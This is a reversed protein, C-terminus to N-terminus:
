QRALGQRFSVTTHCKECARGFAGDHVENRGLCAYCTSPASVKAARSVTHCAHCQLARHAGTLPHQKDHDFRWRSWGNPNHFTACNPGLRGVHHADRHCSARARSAEKFSPQCAECPVAAHLGILPFRTLDHDFAVAQRWGTEKNCAECASGNRGAHKDELGHCSGCTTALGQYREGAHCKGAVEKHAGVLTFRTKSHHFPKM